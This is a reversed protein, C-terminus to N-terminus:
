AKITTLEKLNLCCWAHWLQIYISQEKQSYILISSSELTDDENFVGIEHFRNKMRIRWHYSNQKQGLWLICMNLFKLISCNKSFIKVWFPLAIDLPLSGLLQKPRTKLNLNHLKVWYCWLDAAHLHGSKFNFGRGLNQGVLQLKDMCLIILKSTLYTQRKVEKKYWGVIKAPKTTLALYIGINFIILKLNLNKFVLILIEFPLKFNKSISLVSIVSWSHFLVLNPLNNNIKTQAPEPDPCVWFM